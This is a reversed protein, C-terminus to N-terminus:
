DLSKANELIEIRLRAPVRKLGIESTAAPKGHAQKGPLAKVKGNQILGSLFDSRGM